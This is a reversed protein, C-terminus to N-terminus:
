LLDLKRYLDYYDPFEKELLGKFIENLYNDQKGNVLYILYSKISGEKIHYNFLSRYVMKQEEKLNYDIIPDIFCKKM